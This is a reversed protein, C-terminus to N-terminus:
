YSRPFDCERVEGKFLMFYEYTYLSVRYKVERGSSQLIQAVGFEVHHCVELM